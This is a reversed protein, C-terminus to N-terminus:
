EWSVERGLLFMGIGFWKQGQANRTLTPEGGAGVGASQPSLLKARQRPSARGCAHTGLDRRARGRPGARVFTAGARKRGAAWLPRLRPGWAGAAAGRTQPGRM